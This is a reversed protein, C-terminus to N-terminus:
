PIEAERASRDHAAVARHRRRQRMLVWIAVSSLLLAAVSEAVFAGLPAPWVGYPSTNQWILCDTLMWAAAVQAVVAALVRVWRVARLAVPIVLVVHGTSMWLWVSRVYVSVLPFGVAVWVAVVAFADVVAVVAVLFTRAIVDAVVGGIPLTVATVAGVLMASM